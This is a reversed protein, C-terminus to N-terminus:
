TPSVKALAMDCRGIAVDYTKSFQNESNIKIASTINNKIHKYKNM